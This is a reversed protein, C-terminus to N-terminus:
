SRGPSSGVDEGGAGWLSEVSSLELARGAVVLATRDAAAAVIQNVRGLLDRFERGLANDPVLGFGVENSIVVAPERRATLARAVNRAEDASSVHDDSLLLNTTWLTLCDVLVLADEPSADIAEALALPEEALTWHSPREDRHRQIRDAMDADRAEATAIFHVPGQWGRGYRLALTSKGSRAGGVIFTLGPPCQLPQPEPEPVGPVPRKASETTSDTM